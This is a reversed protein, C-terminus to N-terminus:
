KRNRYTLLARIQTQSRSFAFGIAKGRPVQFVTGKGASFQLGAVDVQIRGHFVFFVMHMRKSNKQKKIAGPPMEVFGSGLFPTSLIKAFRFTSDKVEHTQIASPAYAIDLAINTYRLLVPIPVSHSPLFMGMMEEEQTGAQIEPDWVKVPGYFVGGGETEWPDADEAAEDDSPEDRNKKRKSKKKSSRKGKRMPGTDLEETRIIEKITSVPFRQGVEVDNNDNGYVVRENRWYALPRVSVRGSRTHKVSNDSPTERRLIVLSRNKGIPGNRKTYNDLVQDLQQEQDASLQVNSQTKAKGARAKKTPRPDETEDEPERQAQEKPKKGRRKAGSNADTSKAQSTANQRTGSPGPEPSANKRKKGRRSANAVVSPSTEEPNDAEEPEADEEAEEDEEPEEDAGVDAGEHYDGPAEMFTPEEEGEDGDMLYNGDDSFEETVGEDPEVARGKGKDNTEANHAVKLPFNAQTQSRSFDLTRRPNTRQSTPSSLESGPFPSSRLGPTRRPSGSMFTKVPSRSRPPLTFSNRAARRGSILDAPEPISSGLAM